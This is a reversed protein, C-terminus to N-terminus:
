EDKEIGALFEAVAPGVQDVSSSSDTTATRARSRSTSPTAAPARLVLERIERQQYTPYLIDSSIGLTLVPATIRAFAAELGGRGRGIDHLDM